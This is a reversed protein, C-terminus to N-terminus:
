NTYHIFFYYVYCKDYLLSELYKLHIFLFYNHQARNSTMDLEKRGWPSYLRGPEEMWPIKWILICFHTAMKRKWPIKGFWPKLRWRKQRRCQCAPEKDSAGRPFGKLCLLLHYIFPMIALAVPYIALLSSVFIQTFNKCSLLFQLIIMDDRSHKGICMIILKIETQKSIELTLIESVGSPPYTLKSQCFKRCNGVTFHYKHTHLLSNDLTM